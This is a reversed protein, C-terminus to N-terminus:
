IYISEVLRWFSGFFAWHIKVTLPWSESQNTHPSEFLRKLLLALAIWFSILCLACFFTIWLSCNRDCRAACACVFALLELVTIAARLQAPWTRVQQLHLRPVNSGSTSRPGAFSSSPAPAPLSSVFSNAESARSGNSIM